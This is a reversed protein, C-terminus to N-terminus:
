KEEWGPVHASVVALAKSRPVEADDVHAGLASDRGQDIVTLIVKKFKTSAPLTSLTTVLSDNEGERPLAGRNVADFESVLQYAIVIPAMGERISKLKALSALNIRVELTKGLIAREREGAETGVPGQVPDRVGVMEDAIFFKIWYPKAMLGEGRLQRGIMDLAADRLAKIAGFKKQRSPEDTFSETYRDLSAFQKQLAEDLRRDEVAGTAPNVFRGEEDFVTGSKRRELEAELEAIRTKLMAIEAHATRLEEATTIVRLELNRSVKGVREQIHKVLGHIPWGEEPTEHEQAMLVPVVIEDARVYENKIFSISLPTGDDFLTLATGNPIEKLLEVGREGRLSEIPYRGAHPAGESSSSGRRKIM